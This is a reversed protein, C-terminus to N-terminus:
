VISYDDLSQSAAVSLKGDGVLIGVLVTPAVKMTARRGGSLHCDLCTIGIIQM